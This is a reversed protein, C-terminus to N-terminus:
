IIIVGLCTMPLCNLVLYLFFFRVLPWLLFTYVTFFLITIVVLMENSVISALLCHFVVM